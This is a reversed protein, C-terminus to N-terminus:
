LKFFQNLSTLKVLFHKQQIKTRHNRMPFPLGRIKPRLVWCLYSRMKELAELIELPSVSVSQVTIQNQTRHSTQLQEMSLQINPLLPCFFTALPSAHFVLSPNTICCRCLTSSLKIFPMLQAQPRQAPLFYLFFPFTSCSDHVILYLQYHYKKERSFQYAQRSGAQPLQPFPLNHAPLLSPLWM